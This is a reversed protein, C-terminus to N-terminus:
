SCCKNQPHPDRANRPHGVLVRQAECYPLDLHHTLTLDASLTNIRSNAKSEQINANEVAPSRYKM